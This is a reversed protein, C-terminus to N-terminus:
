KGRTPTNLKRSATRDQLENASGSHNSHASSKASSKASCILESPQLAGESFDRGGHSTTESSSTLPQTDVLRISELSRLEQEAEKYASKLIIVKAEMESVAAQFIARGQLGENVSRGESRFAVQDGQMDGVVKRLQRQLDSVIDKTERAVQESVSMKLRNQLDSVIDRTELIGQECVGLKTALGSDRSDVAPVGLVPQQSLGSALSQITEMMQSTDRSCQLQAAAFDNFKKDLKELHKCTHEHIANSLGLQSQCKAVRSKVLQVCHFLEAISMPRIEEAISVLGHVFEEKSISGSEDMINVISQMDHKTYAIEVQDFTTAVEPLVRLV